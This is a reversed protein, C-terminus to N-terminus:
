TVRERLVASAYDMAAVVLAILWIVTGAQNWQLLNIYQILLYGIGGGGVFGIITSMRVNIDWRYLTFSIFAPIVQPLVAFLVVQLRNAGTATIAEIPGPDIGEISESYLKGLAGISHIALALVGAFPGIGVVVAMIVAVIMVEISRTLNFFTRTAIYIAQGPGSGKMLNRAALFSLPVSLIVGFFTGMLALFLTEVLKDLSLSLTESLSWQGTPAIVDARITYSGPTVSRPLEFTFKFTGSAETTFSYIPRAYDKEDVLFLRAPTNPQLGHGEVTFDQGPELSAPEFSLRGDASSAQGGPGPGVSISLGTSTTDVKQTVLDPRVLGLVIHQMNPLGTVLQPLDIRTVKWGYGLALLGLLLVLLSRWTPAVSPAKPLPKTEVRLAM